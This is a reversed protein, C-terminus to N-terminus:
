ATRTAHGAPLTDAPGRTPWVSPGGTTCNTFNLVLLSQLVM